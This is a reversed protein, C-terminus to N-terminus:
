ENQIRRKNFQKSHKIKKANQERIYSIFAFHGNKKTSDKTM